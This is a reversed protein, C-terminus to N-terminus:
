APVLDVVIERIPESQTQEKPELEATQSIDFVTGIIFRHGNAVQSPDSGYVIMAM